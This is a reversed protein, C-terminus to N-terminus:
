WWPFYAGFNAEKLSASAEHETMALNLYLSNAVDLYTRLASDSRWRGLERIEAFPTGRLRHEVAWGARPSHPTWAGDLGLSKIASKIM